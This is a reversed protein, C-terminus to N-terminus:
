CAMVPFYIKECKLDCKEIHGCSNVWYDGFSECEYVGFSTIRGSTIHKSIYTPEDSMLVKFHPVSPPKDYVHIVHVNKDKIFPIPPLHFPYFTGFEPETLHIEGDSDVYFPGKFTDKIPVCRIQCDYDHNSHGLFVLINGFHLRDDNIDDFKFTQIYRAM